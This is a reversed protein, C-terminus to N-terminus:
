NRAYAILGVCARKHLMNVDGKKIEFAHGRQYTDTMVTIPFM